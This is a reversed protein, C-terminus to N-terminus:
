TRKLTRTNISKTNTENKDGKNHPSENWLREATAMGFRTNCVMKEFFKFENGMNHLSSHCSYCLPIVDKDGARLSMGRSSFIPKLLHHAQINYDSCRPRDKPMTGNQRLRNFHDAICCDLNSVWEVHKKNTYRKAM